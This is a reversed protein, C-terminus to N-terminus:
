RGASAQAAPARAPQQAQAGELTSAAQNIEALDRGSTGALWAAIPAATRESAHAATGALALIAEVQEPTPPAMGIASAFHEIWEDRSM